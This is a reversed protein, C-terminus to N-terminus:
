RENQHDFAVTINKLKPMIMCDPMTIMSDQMKLRTIMCVRTYDYTIDEGMTMVVIVFRLKPMIMRYDGDLVHEKVTVKRRDMMTGIYSLFAGLDTEKVQLFSLGLNKDLFLVANVQEKDRWPPIKLPLFMMPIKLKVEDELIDKLCLLMMHFIEFWGHNVIALM